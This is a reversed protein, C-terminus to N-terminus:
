IAEVGYLRIAMKQLLRKRSRWVTAPDCSIEKAIQGDSKGQLYRGEIVPYFDEGAVVQLAKEVSEIERRDAEITQELDTILAELVEAPDLRSGGNAHYIVIDKSKQRPGYKRLEELREIDDEQKERLTPLAYLRKETAKYADRTRREQDRRGANIATNVAQNIAAELEEETLKYTKM